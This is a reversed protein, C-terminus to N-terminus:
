LGAGDRARQDAVLVDIGALMEESVDVGAGHWRVLLWWLLRGIV